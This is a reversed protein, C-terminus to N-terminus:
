RDKTARLVAYCSQFSLTLGYEAAWRAAISAEEQRVIDDLLIICDNSLLRHAVPLLGYRGGHTTGPPGDCVVASFTGLNPPLEYWDFDGYNRLPVLRVDAKLKLRRLTNMVRQHWEAHHELSTCDFGLAAMLITTAGSGCELIRRGKLEAVRQVYDLKGAFGQNGWGELILPINLTKVGRRLKYNAIVRKIFQKM